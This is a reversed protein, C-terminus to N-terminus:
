EEFAPLWGALWTVGLFFRIYAWVGGLGLLVARFLKPITAAFLALGTSLGVMWMSFLGEDNVLRSTTM